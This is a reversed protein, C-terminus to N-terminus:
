FRGHAHGRHVHRRRYSAGGAQTPAPSDGYETVTVFKEEWLIKKVVNGSTVYETSYYTPQPTPTASPPASTPEVAQAGVAFSPTTPQPAPISSSHGTEKFAQGPLPAAPSSAKEGPRYTLTPPAQGATTAPKNNDDSGVGVKVGGPLSVMPGMVNEGFLLQPLSKKMKCSTAKSEDVVNFLPCDEIRGSPNTCTNIAKQLFNSDWGM